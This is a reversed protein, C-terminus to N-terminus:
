NPLAIGLRLLRPSGSLISCIIDSYGYSALKTRVTRYDTWSKIRHPARRPAIHWWGGRGALRMYVFMKDGPGEVIVVRRISAGHRQIADQLEAEPIGATQGMAISGEYQEAAFDVTQGGFSLGSNLIAPTGPPM